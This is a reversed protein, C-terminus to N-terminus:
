KTRPDEWNEDFEASGPKGKDVKYIKGNCYVKDTKVEGVEDGCRYFLKDQCYTKDGAKECVASTYTSFNAPDPEADAIIQGTYSFSVVVVALIVVAALPYALKVM